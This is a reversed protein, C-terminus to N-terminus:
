YNCKEIHIFFFNKKIYFYIIYIKIIIIIIINIFLIRNFYIELKM